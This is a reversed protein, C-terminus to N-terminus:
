VHCGRRRGFPLLLMLYPVKVAAGPHTTTSSVAAASRADKRGYSYVGSEEKLLRRTRRRSPLLERETPWGAPQKGFLLKSSAIFKIYQFQKRQIAGYLFFVRGGCYFM